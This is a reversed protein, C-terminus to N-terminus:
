LMQWPRTPNPVVQRRAGQEILFVAVISYKRPLATRIGRQATDSVLPMQEARRVTVGSLTQYSYVPLNSRPMVRGVRGPLAVM